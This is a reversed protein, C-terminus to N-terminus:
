VTPYHYYAIDTDQVIVGDFTGTATAVNSMSPTAPPIEFVDELKFQLLMQNKLVTRLTKGVSRDIAILDELTVPQPVQDPLTGLVFQIKEGEANIIHSLALEEMAISALLINAVSTRDLSIQPTINPITPFSM